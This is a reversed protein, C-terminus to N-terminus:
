QFAGSLVMSGKSPSETVLDYGTEEMIRLTEEEKERIREQYQFVALDREIHQREEADTVGPNDEVPPPVHVADWLLQRLSTWSFNPGQLFLGVVREERLGQESVGWEKSLEM